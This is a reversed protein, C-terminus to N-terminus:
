KSFFLEFMNRFDEIRVDWSWNKRIENQLNRGLYVRLDLYMMKELAKKLADVNRDILLGYHGNQIIEEVAGCHTSIVPVGMSGAELIPNSLGETESMCVHVDVGNYFSPMQEKTRKGRGYQAAVILSGTEECAKSVLNFGKNGSSRGSVSVRLVDSKKREYKSPDFLDTDVGHQALLLPTDGVVDKFVEMLNKNVVHFLCCKDAISVCRGPFGKEFLGKAGEPHERYLFECRLGMITKDKPPYRMPMPDLVYICDYNPALDVVQKQRSYAIDIDFETLRKQIEQCHREFVWGPQDAVLLIKKM